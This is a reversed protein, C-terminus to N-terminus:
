GKIGTKSSMDTLQELNSDNVPLFLTLHKATGGALRTDKQLSIFSTKQVRWIGQCHSKTKSRM